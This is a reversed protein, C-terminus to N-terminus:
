EFRMLEQLIIHCVLIMIDESGCHGHGCSKAPHHGLMLTRVMFDCSGNIMHDQLTVHCVLVIIDGSDFHEHYGFKAPHHSVM